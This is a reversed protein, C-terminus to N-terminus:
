KSTINDMYECGFHTKYAWIHSRSEKEEWSMKTDHGFEKAIYWARDYAKDETEYLVRRTKYVVCRYRVAVYTDMKSIM